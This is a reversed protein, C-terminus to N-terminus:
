DPLACRLRQPLREQGEPSSGSATETGSTQVSNLLLFRALLKTLCDYTPGYPMGYAAGYDKKLRWFLLSDRPAAKRVASLWDQEEDWKGSAASCYTGDMYDEWQVQSPNLNRIYNQIDSITVVM